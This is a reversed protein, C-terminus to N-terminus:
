VKNKLSYFDRYTALLPIGLAALLSVNLLAHIPFGTIISAYGDSVFWVILSIATANWAWRERRRFPGYAIFGILIMWSMHAAGLVGYLFDQVRLEAESLTAYADTDFFHNYIPGIFKQALPPYTLGAGWFFINIICVVLIWNSWFSSSFKNMGLNGLQINFDM